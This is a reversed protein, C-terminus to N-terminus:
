PPSPAKTTKPLNASSGAIALGSAKIGTLKRETSKEVTTKAVVATSAITKIVTAEEKAVRDVISFYEEDSLEVKTAPQLATNLIGIISKGV